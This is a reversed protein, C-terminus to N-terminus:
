YMPQQKVINLFKLEETVIRWFEEISVNEDAVVAHIAKRYNEICQLQMTEWEAIKQRKKRETRLVNAYTVVYGGIITGALTLCIQAKLKDNMIEGQYTSM